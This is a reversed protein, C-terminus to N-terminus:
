QPKEEKKDLPTEGPLPPEVSLTEGVVTPTFAFPKAEASGNTGKRKFDGCGVNYSTPPFFGNIQGELIQTGDGSTMMVYRQAVAQPSHHGCVGGRNGLKPNPRYFKCWACVEDDPKIGPFMSDNPM